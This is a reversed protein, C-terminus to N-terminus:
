KLIRVKEAKPNKKIEEDILCFDIKSKKLKDKAKDSFSLAVIKIKKTIEGQSLVKGPIVIVENDKADKEIEYLNKIIRKKAPYSLLASVELWAENKKAIRITEVLYPNRKRKAQKEILTKSKMKSYGALACV